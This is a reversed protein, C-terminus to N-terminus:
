GSSSRQGVQDPSQPEIRFDGWFLFYDWQKEVKQLEDLVLLKILGYHFVKTSAAEPKRQVKTSMKSLSKFLFYPINM